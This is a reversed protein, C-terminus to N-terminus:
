VGLDKWPKKIPVLLRFDTLVVPSFAKLAAFNGLNFTIQQFSVFIYSQM